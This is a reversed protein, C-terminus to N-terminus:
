VHPCRRLGLRALDVSRRVLEDAGCACKCLWGQREVWEVVYLRGYTAHLHREAGPRTRFTQSRRKRPVLACCAPKPCHLASPVRRNLDASKAQYEEGCFCRVRWLGNSITKFRSLSSPLAIPAITTVPPSPTSNPINPDAPRSFQQGKDIRRYIRTSATRPRRNRNLGSSVRLFPNSKPRTM